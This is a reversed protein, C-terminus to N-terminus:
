HRLLATHPLPAPPVTRVGAAGDRRGQGTVRRQDSGDRRTVDPGVDPPNRDM